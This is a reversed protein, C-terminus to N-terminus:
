RVFLHVESTDATDSSNYSLNIRELPLGMQTLTRLVKEANRRARTSEIAVEAANGESPHVAILDFRAQPYRQLAENVAMYVPQEYEVDPRNFRIKVLPAPGPPVDATPASAQAGAAGGAFSALGSFPKNSLSKGYLDGNTVALALTRLNHRESSLYTSLRTIDDNVNDLLREIVVLTNNINDELEALQVHDEEVAGSLSYTARVSELLFSAESATSAMEIAMQNLRAISQGLDELNVEAQSIRRLLRPNGPTTGSQLQTSVTAVAAYYEAAKEENIRQMANLNASLSTVRNQLAFLDDQLGAIKRSVLTETREFFSDGLLESPRIDRVQAPKSYVNKRLEMPLPDNTIILARDDASQALAPEPALWLLAASCVALGTLINVSSLVAFPLKNLM